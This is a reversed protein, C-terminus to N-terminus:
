TYIENLVKILTRDLENQLSKAFEELEENYRGEIDKVRRKRWEKFVDILPEGFTLRLQLDDDKIHKKWQAFGLRDNFTYHKIECRCETNFTYTTNLVIGLKSWHQLKESFDDGLIDTLRKTSSLNLSFETQRIALKIPIIPNQQELHPANVQIWSSIRNNFNPFLMKYDCHEYLEEEIRKLTQDLKKDM